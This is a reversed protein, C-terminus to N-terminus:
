FVHIAKTAIGEVSESIVERGIGAFHALHQLLVILQRHPLPSPGHGNRIHARKVLVPVMVLEPLDKRCDFHYVSTYVV